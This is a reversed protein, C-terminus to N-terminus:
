KEWCGQVLVIAGEFWKSGQFWERFVAKMRTAFPSCQIALWGMLARLLLLTSLILLAEGIEAVELIGWVSNRNAGWQGFKLYTAVRTALSAHFSPIKAPHFGAKYSSLSSYTHPLHSATEMVPLSFPFSFSISAPLLLFLFFPYWSVSRIVRPNIDM